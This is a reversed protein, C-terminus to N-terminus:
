QRSKFLIAMYDERATFKPEVGHDLFIPRTFLPQILIKNSDERFINWMSEFYKRAIVGTPVLMLITLNNQDWEMFAKKIYKKLENNPPNCFAVCNPTGDYWMCKLADQEKSIFKTCKTNEANAAVDITPYVSFMKCLSQYLEPKTWWESHSM